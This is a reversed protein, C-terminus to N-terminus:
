RVQPERPVCTERSHVHVNVLWALVERADAEVFLINSLMLIASPLTFIYSLHNPKFGLMWMMVLIHKMAVTDSSFPGCRPLMHYGLSVLLACNYPDQPASHDQEQPVTDALFRYYVHFTGEEHSLRGLHSEDLVFALVKASKIHGHENFHLELRRGHCSANANMLTKSNGFPNLLDTRIRANLVTLVDDDTVGAHANSNTSSSIIDVLDGTNVTHSGASVLTPWSRSDLLDLELLSSFPSHLGQVACLLPNYM